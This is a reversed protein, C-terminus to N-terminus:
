LNVRMRGSMLRPLLSDRISALACLQRENNEIQQDIPFVLREFTKVFELSPVVCKMNEFDTKGISGFVTGEAEFNKFEPKLSLMRYYTYSRSNSKHRIAAVGRGICCKSDAMNVDGVPARVSILTDCANAFRTPASCFMRETPYRFGFDTRGQYFSLGEGIENYTEGPPSQGMTLNFEEGVVGLRWGEPLGNVFKTKEHGPLKFDVFWHQFLAQAISELSKNMRHNLEIKEDLDSLIKAIARQESVDPLGVIIKKFIDTEVRQRGSTGTMSKVALDRVEPCVTLYYVYQSITKGEKESLVIFETSGAAIENDGLIDVFITKGNELCPTIRAMLTDNNQFRSGGVYRRYVYGQIKKNYEKLDAMSVFKVSAGKKIPRYPNIEVAESFM